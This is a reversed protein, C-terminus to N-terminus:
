PRVRRLRDAGFGGYESGPPEFDVPLSATSGVRAWHEMETRVAESQAHAALREAWHKFSTTKPPLVVPQGARLQAYARELDELLIRWSVGDVALHHIALLVRDGRPPGRRVYAAAVLRGDSLSLSAGVEDGLAETAADQESDPLGALDVVKLQMSPPLDGYSQQWGEPTREYRLRLADHHRVLELLAQELLRLELEHYWPSGFRRIGTIRNWPIWRSSGSSFQRSVWREPLMGQEAPPVAESAVFPILGVITPNRFMDAATIRLGAQRARAIVQLILISDGGLGFFSDHIGVQEIGLVEAWIRALAVELPTTPLVYEDAAARHAAEPVPLARRDVKGNATLPLVDLVVMATPVM